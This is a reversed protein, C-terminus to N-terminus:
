SSANANLGASLKVFYALSDPNSMSDKNVAKEMPHGLLIRRIPVEMKKGNLTRPIQPVEHIEDPLYRPSVESRIRQKIKNKLAEDLVAGKAPVVFILLMPQRDLMELDIVLSDAVEELGEVAQYIESTGMRVGNRNITSDSRGYIICGGGDTIKIWDGHRWIGPYMEFYSEKYRIGDPDNWLYLPMSPMPATIVLEGVEGTLSHGQEDYAEVKAGLARCQIEGARVPLVPSGGVFATCLDTGGSASALLLDDKVSRYVWGFGDTTLPSGTSGIGKLKSLDYQNGPEIGSKMCANIYGASTGFFTMGSQEALQWLVDISPYAPSGDYIVITAGVLLGGILFNWMMWGTTTFWFFREGETINCQLLLAKVHELLIGGQGQVIPKPLGTTGSSYLIWLPHDFPLQEFTLPEPEHEQVLEEWLLTDGKLEDPMAQREVLYPVLVTKQLSPLADQLERVADIRDFKKGNYSYGDVAFLVKPQIQQFRSVVSPTGFDPSCSSWIAGISACALFASIAEPINPMYAVVRDGPKVGLKKLTHAVAETQKRLTGWSIETYPRHESQFLIAPQDNRSHRFVHEAYNLRAGPFWVAGPMTRSKLVSTYPRSAGIGYFEWISGWFDELNEVSWKWLSEYDAFSLGYKQEVWRMYRHLATDQIQSESPEWLLTGEPISVM